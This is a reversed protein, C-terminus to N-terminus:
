AAKRRRLREALWGLGLMFVALGAFFIAAVLIPRQPSSPPLGYYAASDWTLSNWIELLIVLGLGGTLALARRLPAAARFYGWAGLAAALASAAMFYLLAPHHNEDFTMYVSTFFIYIALAPLTLDRWPGALAAKEPRLAARRRKRLLLPVIVAAALPLCMFNVPQGYFTANTWWAADLVAWGLYSLTWRPFDRLIGSALGLLILWNFVLYPHTVLMWLLPARGPPFQFVEFQSAINALGFLLFPLVALFAQRPALPATGDVVDLPGSDMTVRRRKTIHQEWQALAGTIGDWVARLWLRLLRGSRGERVAQRFLARYVQLMEAGFRARFPAPYAKLLCRVTREFFAALAANM